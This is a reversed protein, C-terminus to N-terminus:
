KIYKKKKRIIIKRKWKDAQQALICIQINKDISKSMKDSQNPEKKQRRENIQYKYFYM